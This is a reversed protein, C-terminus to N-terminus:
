GDSARHAGVLAVAMVATESGPNRWRHRTGNQVVTDGPLLRVEAGDDLELIIEGALVVDFDTTDSTHMGLNDMEVTALMGPLKAEFEAIAADLDQPLSAVEGPPLTFFAFRFGDIPPFWAAPAPNTGDDPYTQPEDSGWLPIFESGPALSVTVPEVRQDSAVIAKGREDHGTVVRRVNM